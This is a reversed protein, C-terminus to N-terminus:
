RFDKIEPKHWLYKDPVPVKLLNLQHLHRALTVYFAQKNKDRSLESNSSKNLNEDQVLNLSIITQHRLNM